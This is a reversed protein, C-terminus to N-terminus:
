HPCPSGLPSMAIPPNPPVGGPGRGKSPAPSPVPVVHGQPAPVTGAAVERGWPAILARPACGRWRWWPVAVTGTGTGTGPVSAAGRGARHWWLYPGHAGGGWPQAGGLGLDPHGWLGLDPHTGGKPVRRHIQPPGEGNHSKSTPPPGPRRPTGRCGLSSYPPFKPPNHPPGLAPASPPRLAPPAPPASRPGGRRRTGSSPSPAASRPGPARRGGRSPGWHWPSRRSVAGCGLPGLAGRGWPGM